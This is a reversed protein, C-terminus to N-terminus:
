FVGVVINHYTCLLKFERGSLFVSLGDLWGVLWFASLCSPEYPRQVELFASHGFSQM